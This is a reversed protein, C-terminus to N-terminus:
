GEALAALRPRDLVVVRRYGTLVINQRRLQALAKHVTPEAAGVLAALEPQSLPVGIAGGGGGYSDALEVLVRALRVPVEHGGFDVRRRTAWRLKAGVSGGVAFAADPHEALYRRFEAQGVVRARVWGAATVTAIRPQGDMMALEGVLDGGCRVALLALYGEPTTATVKVFGKVLVLLHGAREGERMLVTGPEYGCATGLALMAARASIALGALLTGRPFPDM